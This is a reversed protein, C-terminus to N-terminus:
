QNLGSEDREALRRLVLPFFGSIILSVATVLLAIGAGSDALIPHLATGVDRKAGAFAAVIWRQGSRQRVGVPRQIPAPDHRLSRSPDSSLAKKRRAQGPAVCIGHSADRHSSRLTM